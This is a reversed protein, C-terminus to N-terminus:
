RLNKAFVSKLYGRIGRKQPPIDTEENMIKEAVEVFHRSSASSPYILSVPKQKMVAKINNNDMPITGLYSMNIDLFRSVVINLKEYLKRGEDESTVRNAIMKISTENKRFSENMSLAKMLAYSDTISTPEPTTVLITEPSAM